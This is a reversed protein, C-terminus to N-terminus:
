CTLVISPLSSCCVLYRFSSTCNRDSTFSEQNTDVSKWNRQNHTTLHYPTYLHCKTLFHDHDIRFYKRLLSIYPSSVFMLLRIISTWLALMWIWVYCASYPNSISFRLWTTWITKQCKSWMCSPKTQQFLFAKICMRWAIRHKHENTSSGAAGRKPVSSTPEKLVTVGMYWVVLYPM